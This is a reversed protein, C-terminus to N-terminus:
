IKRWNNPILDDTNHFHYNPGFWKKPATVIKDPNKNLWAGWWSFSSNAIINHDCMSMLCMDIYRNNSECYFIDRSIHSLNNKCWEIDDSFCIIDCEDLNKLSKEYYEMSCLPHYQQLNVYDGRRVHLSVLQKEKKINKYIEYSSNRIEEKFTFDKEIENKIFSFYKETQYNGTYNTNDGYTLVTKNYNFGKEYHIKMRSIIDQYKNLDYVKCKIDFCEFLQHNQKPIAYVFNNKAAVGKLLAYQFMQNGLQGHNGLRSFTIM